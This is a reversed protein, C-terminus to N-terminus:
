LIHRKSQIKKPVLALAICKWIYRRSPTLRQFASRSTAIHSKGCDEEKLHKSTQNFFLTFLRLVETSPCFSIGSNSAGPLYVPLYQHAKHYWQYSPFGWMLNSAEWLRNAQREANIIEVDTILNLIVWRIKFIYKIKVCSFQNADLVQKLLSLLLQSGWHFVSKFITHLLLFSILSITVLKFYVFSEWSHLIHIDLTSCSGGKWRWYWTCCVSCGDRWNMKLWLRPGFAQLFFGRSCCVVCFLYTTNMCRSEAKKQRRAVKIVRYVFLDLKVRWIKPKNLRGLLHPYASDLM